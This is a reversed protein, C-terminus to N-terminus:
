VDAKMAALLEDDYGYIDQAFQLEGDADVWSTFYAIHVDIRRDVNLWQEKAGLLSRVAQGSIDKQTQLLADAFELPKLVRICGHSYARYDRQFLSKTPTDHLYVSHKNPFLFKVQGLANARGPPQRVHFPFKGRVVTWDIMRSNLRRGNPAIVEYGRAALYNPNAKLKPLMEETSISKPVHWYPNVVVHEMHDSFVPTKHKPKGVIVRTTHVMDGNNHVRLRFEPINVLVNFKGLEPKMWRWREMNAILAPVKKVKNGNMKALTQNGVIGDAKLDNATQFEIVADRVAEDFLDPNEAAETVELRERLLPVRKDVSGFRMLRGTPVKVPLQEEEQDMVEALKAKLAHYAKHTPQFSDIAEAVDNSSALKTLIVNYPTTHPALDLNASISRPVTRGSQMHRTFMLASQTMQIELEAAADATAPVKAADVVPYDAPNLGDYKAASIREALKIGAINLGFRDTWITQYGNGEYHALVADRLPKDGLTSTFRKDQLLTQVSSALKQAEQPMSDIDGPLQKWAQGIRTLALSMTSKPAQYRRDSSDVTLRLDLKAPEAPPEPTTEAVAPTTLETEETTSAPQEAQDTKAVASDDAAPTLADAPATDDAKAETETLTPETTEAPTQTATAVVLAAGADPAKQLEVTPSEPAGLVKVAITETSITETVVPSTGITQVSLDLPQSSAQQAYGTQTSILLAATSALWIGRPM